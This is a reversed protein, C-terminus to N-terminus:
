VHGPEEIHDGPLQAGAHGSLGLTERLSRLTATALSRRSDRFPLEAVLRRWAPLDDHGSPSRVWAWLAELDDATLVAQRLWRELEERDRVVGPAESHSLLPGTYCDAAERVDGRSLHAGVRVVDSEVDLALRYPDTDIGAGLAKRLRSMEVRVTAPKGADGYLDSALEESTMGDPRTAMLALIEGHRPSVAIVHGNREVSARVGLVRLRLVPRPASPHEGDLGHAVYADGRELPELFAAAGSPLVVQGGGSSIDLREGALWGDAGCVIVRGTRSVLARRRGGAVSKEHRSRLRADREYMHGLLQAEVAKATALASAFAYPQAAQVLGTLDITGVVRGSDPDRVPAASCAWAQVESNFHEAAFVQVAHAEALATGIANTGAGAESWAAGETFNISEAAELRLRQQGEVWLLIGDADSVVVLHEAELAELCERILPAALFLPHVEWRAAVEDADAAVPAVRSMLPDVGAEQSRQWSAAIPARVAQTIGPETLFTEWARRLERALTGSAKGADLALWPNTTM